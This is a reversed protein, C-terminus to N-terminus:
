PITVKNKGIKRNIPLNRMAYGDTTLYWNYSVLLPYDEDDVIITKDKIFLKKSMKLVLKKELM